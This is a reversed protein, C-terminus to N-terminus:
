LKNCKLQKFDSKLINNIYGAPVHDLIGFFAFGTMKTLYGLANVNANINSITTTASSASANYNTIKRAMLEKIKNEMEMETKDSNGDKAIIKEPTIDRMENVLFFFGSFADSLSHSYNWWFDVFKPYGFHPSASDLVPARKYWKEWFEWKGSNLTIETGNNTGYTASTLGIPVIDNANIFRFHPVNNIQLLRNYERAFIKNGVNPTGYTYIGHIKINDLQVAGNQIHQGKTLLHYAAITATAAGLSHGTIWLPVDQEGNAIDNICKVINKWRPGNDLSSWFGKHVGEDKKGGPVAILRTSADTMWENMNFPSTGKFALIIVKKGASINDSSTSIEIVYCRSSQAPFEYVNTFNWYNRAVKTIVDETEYVLASVHAFLLALSRFDSINGSIDKAFITKGNLKSVDPPKYDLFLNHNGSNVASGGFWFIGWLYEV